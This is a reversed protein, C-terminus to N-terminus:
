SWSWCFTLLLSSATEAATVSTTTASSAASSVLFFLTPDWDGLQTSKDLGTLDGGNFLDEQVRQWDLFELDNVSQQWVQLVFDHVDLRDLLLGSGTLSGSELSDNDNTVGVTVDTQTDLGGLFNSTGDSGTDDNGLQGDDWDSSTVPTVVQTLRVRQGRLGRTLTTGDGHSQDWGWSTGTDDGGWSDLLQQLQGTNFIDVGRGVTGGSSQFVGQLSGENGDTVSVTEQSWVQPGLLRQWDGWQVDVGILGGGFLLSELHM